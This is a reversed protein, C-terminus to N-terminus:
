NGKKILTGHKIVRYHKMPINVIGSEWGGLIGHWSKNKHYNLNEASLVNGGAFDCIVMGYQQLAKAVTKEGETLDFQDLDLSPDLQIISGEPIGGKTGGDNWIAPPYVHERYAVFRCAAAIKHNIARAEVEHYMITGAIAPVGAAKSPGYFHISEGNKVDQFHELPFVGPGYLRYKMGTFSSWQGSDDKKAGWMDWAWGNKRDIIAIHSDGCPDPMADDPIPINDGFDPGHSLKGSLYLNKEWRKFTDLELQSLERQHVTHRPTSDNIEYIPLTFCNLNIGFGPHKSPDNAMMKIWEDNREHIEPNPPLPQNWFSSDSFFRTNLTKHTDLDSTSDASSENQKNKPASCAWSVLLLLGILTQNLIITKVKAM